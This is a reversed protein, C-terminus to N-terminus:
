WEHRNTRFFWQYLCHIIISSAVNRLTDNDWIMVIVLELSMQPIITNMFFITYCTKPRM